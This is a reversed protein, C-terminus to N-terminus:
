VFSRWGENLCISLFSFPSDGFSNRLLLVLILNGVLNAFVAIFTKPYNRGPDERCGPVFGVCNQRFEITELFGCFDSQM